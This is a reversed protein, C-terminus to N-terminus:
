RLDCREERPNPLKYVLSDGHLWASRGKRVDICKTPCCPRDIALVRRLPVLDARRAVSIEQLQVFESMPCLHLCRTQAMMAATGIRDDAAKSHCEIPSIRCCRRVGCRVVRRDRNRTADLSPLIRCGLPDISRRLGDDDDDRRGGPTSRICSSNSAWDLTRFRVDVCTSPRFRSVVITPTRPATMCRATRSM